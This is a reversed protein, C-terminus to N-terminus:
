EGKGGTAGSVSRERIGSGSWRGNLIDSIPHGASVQRNLDPSRCVVLSRNRKRGIVRCVVADQDMDGQGLQKPILRIQHCEHDAVFNPVGILAANLPALFRLKLRINCAYKEGSASTEVRNSGGAEGAREKELYSAAVRVV